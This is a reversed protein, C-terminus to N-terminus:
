KVVLSLEKTMIPTDQKKFVFMSDLLHDNIQFIVSRSWHSCTYNQEKHFSYEHKDVQHDVYLDASLLIIEVSAFWLWFLEKSSGM